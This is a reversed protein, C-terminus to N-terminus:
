GTAFTIWPTTIGKTSMVGAFSSSDCRRVGYCPPTCDGRPPTAVPVLYKHRTIQDFGLAFRVQAQACQLAQCSFITRLVRPEVRGCCEPNQVVECRRRRGTCCRQGQEM